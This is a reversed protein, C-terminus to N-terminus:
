LWITFGKVSKDGRGPAQPQKGDHRPGDRAKGSYVRKKTKRCCKSGNCNKM